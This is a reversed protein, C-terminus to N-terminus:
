QNLPYKPILKYSKKSNCLRCLPQINEIYDSGGKILPIIHDQTLVIKPEKEGCAPCTFGYQKKLIEWEGFTHSGEAKMKRIHRQLCWFKREEKWRTKAAEKGGKWLHNKSGTMRERMKTKWEETHKFGKRKEVCKHCRKSRFDKLKVGCKECDPFPKKKGKNWAVQGKHADSLIKRTMETIPKRQYHGKPM